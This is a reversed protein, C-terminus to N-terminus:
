LAPRADTRTLKPNRQAGLFIVARLPKGPSFLRVRFIPRSEPNPKIITQVVGHCAKWQVFDGPLIGDNNLKSRNM